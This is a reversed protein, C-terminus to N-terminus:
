IKVVVVTGKGGEDPMLTYGNGGRVNIMEENNLVFEEYSKLNLTKM